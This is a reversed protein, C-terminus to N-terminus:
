CEIGGGAKEVVPQGSVAVLGQRRLNEFDPAICPWCIANGVSAVPLRTKRGAHESASLRGAVFDDSAHFCVADIERREGLFAQAANGAAFRSSSGGPRTL